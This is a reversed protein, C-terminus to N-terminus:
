KGQSAKRLAAAKLRKAQKKQAPEVLSLLRERVKKADFVFDDASAGAFEAVKDAVAIATMVTGDLNPHLLDRQLVSEISSITWTQGRVEIPESQVISRFLRELDVVRVNEHAAAWELIRVNMALRENDSPIQSPALIPGGFPGKGKLAHRVNPITGIVLPCTFADLEKLGMELGKMRRPKKASNAGAGYWFLYDLAIVLTPEAARARASQQAGTLQPAMFFANSGTEDLDASANKDTLCARFFTTLPVNRGTKLEAANGFGATVSAGM